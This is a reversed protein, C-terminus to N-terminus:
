DPVDRFRQDASSVIALAFGGWAREKGTEKGLTHQEVLSLGCPQLLEALRERTPPLSEIGFKLPESAASTSMRAFRWYLAQSSLVETTFYDFAVVSGSACSGIKWLTDEVAERDLYMVVGEWLFLAPKSQDFGADVLRTFWDEKEFDASVFTISTADISTKSLMERKIAQTKPTDVEFSRVQRDKPLRLARTDFGAGLIVFQAMNPLYRECAEDFFTIRAGAEYQRPIDGEFPYRFVRPVYGTLRHALRTSASALRVGVPSIGPLVMMLQSSPEDERTGLYHMFWRGSLPGQASVSVGSGRGTLVAKGVWIVYGILTVPFLLISIAYFVTVAMLDRASVAKHDDKNM